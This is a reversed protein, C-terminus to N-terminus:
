NLVRALLLWFWGRSTTSVNEFMTIWTDRLNGPPVQYPGALLVPRYPDKKWKGFVIKGINKSYEEPIREMLEAKESLYERKSDGAFKVKENDSFQLMVRSKKSAKTEKQTLSKSRPRKKNDTKEKAAEQEGDVGMKVQIQKPPKSKAAGLVPPDELVYNEADFNKIEVQVFDTKTLRDVVFKNAKRERNNTMSMAVYKLFLDYTKTDMANKDIDDYDSAHLHSEMFADDMKIKKLCIRVQQRIDDDTYSPTAM